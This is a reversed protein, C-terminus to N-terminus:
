VVSYVFLPVGDLLCIATNLTIHMTIFNMNRAFVNSLIANSIEGTGRLWSGLFLMIKKKKAFISEVVANMKRGVQQVKQASEPWYARPPSRELLAATVKKLAPTGRDNRPM